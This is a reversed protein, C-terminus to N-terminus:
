LCWCETCDLAWAASCWRVWCFTPSRRVAYKSEIMMDRPSVVPTKSEAFMTHPLDSDAARYKADDVIANEKQKPM